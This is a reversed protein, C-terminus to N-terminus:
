LCVLLFVTVIALELPHGFCGCHVADNDDVGDIVGTEM